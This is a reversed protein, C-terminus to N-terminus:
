VWGLGVDTHCVSNHADKVFFYVAVESGLRKLISQCGGDAGRELAACQTGVNSM